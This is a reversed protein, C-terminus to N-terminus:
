VPVPVKGIFKAKFTIDFERDLYELLLSCHLELGKMPMEDRDHPAFHLTFYSSRVPQEFLHLSKGRDSVIIPSAVFSDSVLKVGTLVFTPTATVSDAQFRILFEGDRLFPTIRLSDGAALLEIVRGESAVQARVKDSLFRTEPLRVQLASQWFGHSCSELFLVTIMALQSWKKM